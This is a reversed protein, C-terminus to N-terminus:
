AASASRITRGKFRLVGSGGGVGVIFGASGVSFPRCGDRCLSTTMGVLMVTGAILAAGLKSAKVISHM